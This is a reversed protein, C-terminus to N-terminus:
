DLKEHLILDDLKESQKMLKESTKKNVVNKSVQIINRRAKLLAFINEEFKSVVEVVKNVETEVKNVVLVDYEITKHIVVTNCRESLEFRIEDMTKKFFTEEARVNFATFDVVTIKVKEDKEPLKKDASSALEKNEKETNQEM